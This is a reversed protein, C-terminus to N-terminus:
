TALIGQQWFKATPNSHLQLFEGTFSPSTFLLYVLERILAHILMGM